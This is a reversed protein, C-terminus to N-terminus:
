DLFLDVIISYGDIKTQPQVPAYLPTEEASGPRLGGPLRTNATEFRLDVTEPLIPMLACVTSTLVEVPRIRLLVIKRGPPRLNSALPCTRLMSSTRSSSVSPM